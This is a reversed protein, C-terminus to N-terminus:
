RVNGRRPAVTRQLTNNATKGSFEELAAELAKVVRPRRHNDQLKMPLKDFWRQREGADGGYDYLNNHPIISSPHIKRRYFDLCAILQPISHFEFTFSCVSVFYVTDPSITPAKSREVQLGDGWMRNRHKMADFEETWHKSM